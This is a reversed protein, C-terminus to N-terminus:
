GSVRNPFLSAMATGGEFRYMFGIVDRKQIPTFIDWLFKPIAIYVWRQKNASTYFGVADILKTTVAIPDGLIKATVLTSPAPFPTGDVYDVGQQLGAQRALDTTFATPNNNADTRM